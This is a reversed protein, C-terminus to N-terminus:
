ARLMYYDIYEVYIYRQYILQTKSSRISFFHTIIPISRCVDALPNHDVWM